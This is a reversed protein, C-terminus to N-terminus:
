REPLKEFQYAHGRDRLVEAKLIKDPSPKAGPASPDRRRLAAAAEMGEVVRGFVTHKGDLFSTPVFTLFFQSGGTDRGAHAMSLSGRFHRRFNPEYCECRISYGPGGSGTGTPDGGQAMFGPLVRHFVVGDYFGQKVLNLFSATAQPAENEFLELTIDGKTTTLKVRPLDDAAAEAARIQQEKTWHERHAPLAELYGAADRKFKDAPSDFSPDSALNAFQDAEKAKTLYREALDLEGTCYAAVGGITFLQPWTEAAGAEIMGQVLALAKEYQDGGDGHADGIVHFQAIALLTANVSPYAEKDAKYVALGADSIKALLAGTQRRIEELQQDLAARSEGQAADREKQLSKLEDVQANWQNVLAEFAENAAKAEPSPEHAPKAAEDDAAAAAEGKAAAQEGSEDAVIADLEEKAPEAAEQALSHSMSSVLFLVVLIRSM